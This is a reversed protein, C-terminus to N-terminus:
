YNVILIFGLLRCMTTNGAAQAPCFGEACRGCDREWLFVVWVSLRAKEM